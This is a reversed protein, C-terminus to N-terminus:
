CKLWRKLVFVLFRFYKDRNGGNFYQVTFLLKGSICLKTLCLTTKNLM